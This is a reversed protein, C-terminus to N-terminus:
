FFVFTAHVPNNQLNRVKKGAKSKAESRGSVSPPASGRNGGLDSMGPQQLDVSMSVRKMKQGPKIEKGDFFDKVEGARTTLTGEGSMKDLKWGGEYVDGSFLMLTGIGSRKDALWNGDYVDGNAYKM